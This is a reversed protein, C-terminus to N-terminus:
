NSCNGSKDVAIVKYFYEPLNRIRKDAHETSITSAIQNRPVLEVEENLSRYIRYYCFDNEMSANWTLVNAERKDVEQKTVKLGQVKAPAEEDYNTTYVVLSYAPVSDTFHSDKLSIKKSYGQM